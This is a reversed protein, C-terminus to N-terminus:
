CLRALEGLLGALQETPYTSDATMQINGIGIQLQGSEKAEQMSPQLVPERVRIETFKPAPLKSKEPM